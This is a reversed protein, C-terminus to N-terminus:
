IVVKSPQPKRGRKGTKKVPFTTVTGSDLAECLHVRMLSADYNMFTQGVGGLALHFAFAAAYVGCDVMNTQQACPLINVVLEGRSDIKAKYLQRMQVKMVDSIPRSMSDMLVVLNGILATTIWHNVDHLIM